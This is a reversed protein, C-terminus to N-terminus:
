TNEGPSLLLLVSWKNEFQITLHRNESKRDNM